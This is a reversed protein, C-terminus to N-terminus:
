CAIPVNNNNFSNIFVKFKKESKIKFAYGIYVFDRGPGWDSRTCLPPTGLHPPKPAAARSQGSSISLLGNLLRAPRPRQWPEVGWQHIWFLKNLLRSGRLSPCTCLPRWADPLPEHRTEWACSTPFPLLRIPTTQWRKIYNSSFYSYIRILSFILWFAAHCVSWPDSRCLRCGPCLPSVRCTPAPLHKAM